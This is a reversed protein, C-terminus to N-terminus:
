TYGCHLILCTTVCGSWCIRVHFAVADFLYTLGITWQVLTFGENGEVDGGVAGSLEARDMIYETVHVMFIKADRM